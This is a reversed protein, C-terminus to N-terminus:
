QQEKRKTVMEVAQDALESSDISLNGKPPAAAYAAHVAATAAVYADDAAAAGHTAHAASYAARAAREAAQDVARTAVYADAAAAAAAAAARYAADYADTLKGTVGNLWAKTAEIAERPRQDDPYESEFLPLVQEACLITFQVRVRKRIEADTYWDPLPVIQITKCWFGGAEYWERVIIEAEAEWVVPPNLRGRIPNMLLGLNLNPYFHILDPSCLSPNEKKPLRHEVGEGWQTNNHTQHNEDTFKYVKM